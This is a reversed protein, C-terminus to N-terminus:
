VARVNLHAGDGRNNHRRPPARLEKRKAMARRPSAGNASRGILAHPVGSARACGCGRTCLSFCVLLDGRDRRKVRREARLPQFPKGRSFGRRGARLHDDSCPVSAGGSERQVLLFGQRQGMTGPSAGPYRTRPRGRVAHDDDSEACSRDSFLLKTRMRRDFVARPWRM